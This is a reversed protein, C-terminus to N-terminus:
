CIGTFVYDYEAQLWIAKCALLVAEGEFQAGCPKYLCIAPVSPEPFELLFDLLAVLPLVLASAHFCTIM